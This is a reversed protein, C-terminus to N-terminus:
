ARSIHLGNNNGYSMDGLPIGDLTFGLQSQSFGRISIRTSWEYAGFPDASQFSVGPLKELVKLPSTGPAAELLDVRTVNQVQRTQGRGTVEVTAIAPAAAAPAPEPASVDADAAHALLTAAELVALTLLKLRFTTQM